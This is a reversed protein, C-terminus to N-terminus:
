WAPAKDATAKGAPTSSPPMPAPDKAVWAGSAGYAASVGVAIAVVLSAQRARQPKPLDAPVDKWGTVMPRVLKDKKVHTYFLIAAVHLGLLVFLVTASKHHWNTIAHSADDGILIALPGAFSIDDNSVLGSGAQFALM